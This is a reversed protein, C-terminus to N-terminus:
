SKVGTGKKLLRLNIFGVLIIFLILIGIALEVHIDSKGIFGFRIGNVMYLIPNFKSVVQWFDPLISISYFVGGLYVLPTIVFNPIITIDDFNRAFVGNFLGILAFLTSSLFLFVFTYFYNYISIDAMFMGTVTVLGGVIIGRLIASLVFGILIKIESIPSVFLEEINGAFKAGFFSSSTNSYSAMIVSMMLLGPFIFNIYDVGEIMQIRDGLFKGFILLYLAITIVPPIITQRWVRLFRITEKRILTYLDTM